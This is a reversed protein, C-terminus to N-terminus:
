IRCDAGPLINQLRCGISNQLRVGCGTPVINQLRCEPVVRCDAGPAIRCDAGPVIRFDAGPVIICGSGAGPVINQM